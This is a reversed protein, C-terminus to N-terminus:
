NDKYSIGDMTELFDFIARSLTISEEALKQQRLAAKYANEYAKPDSKGFGESEIFDILVEASNHHRESKKIQKEAVEYFKPALGYENEFNIMPKFQVM